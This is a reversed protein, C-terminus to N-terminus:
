HKKEITGNIVKFYEIPYMKKIFFVGQFVKSWPVNLYTRFLVNMKFDKNELPSSKLNTFFYEHPSKKFFYEFSGKVPKEIKSVENILYVIRGRKGSSAVFCINYVQGPMKKNIIDGLFHGKDVVLNKISNFDFPNRLAHYATTILIAKRKNNLYHALLIEAMMSDRLSFFKTLEITNKIMEYFDKNNISQSRKMRWFLYKSIIEWQKIKEAEGKKTYENIALKIFSNQACFQNESYNLDTNWNTIDSFDDQFKKFMVPYKAVFSKVSDLLLIGNLMERMLTDSTTEIDIGHLQVKGEIIKSALFPWFGNYSWYSLEGSGFFYEAKAIGSVGEKRLISNIKDTNLCSSEIFITNIIGANILEKMLMCQADDVTGDLHTSQALVVINYEKFIDVFPKIQSSNDKTWDISSIPNIELGNFNPTVQGNSYYVCSLFFVIGTIYKQLYSKM